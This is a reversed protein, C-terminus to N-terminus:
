RGSLMGGPRREELIVRKVANDIAKGLKGAQDGTMETQTGGQNDVNVTITTNVTNGSQGKMDVPIAKGNPLPVIAENYAGEGVLGLTPKNVMGGKAFAQFGGRLINGNANFVMGAPMSSLPVDMGPVVSSAGGGGFLASLPNGGGPTGGGFLALLSKYILMKLMEQIIQAAMQFFSDAISNFMEHLVESVTRAGTIVEKFGSTLAQAIHGGVQSSVESLQQLREEVADMQGLTQAQMRQQEAYKDFQARQDDNMTLTDNQTIGLRYSEIAGEAQAMRRAQPSYFGMANMGASRAAMEQNFGLASSKMDEKMTPIMAAARQLNLIQERLQREKALDLLFKEKDKGLQAEIRTLEETTLKGAKQEERAKKLAILRAEEAKAEKAKLEAAIAYKEPDTIDDVLKQQVELGAITEQLGMLDVAGYIKKSVATLKEATDAAQIEKRLEVFREKLVKLRENAADLSSTDMKMDIGALDLQPKDATGTGADGIQSQTGPRIFYGQQKFYGLDAFNGSKLGRSASQHFVNNGGTYVGVHEPAGRRGRAVIDGPKLQSWDTMVVGMKEASKATSDMVSANVGLVKMFGKVAEACQNNVGTLKSTAETARRIIETNLGSTATMTGPGVRQGGMSQGGLLGKTYAIRDGWETGSGIQQYGNFREYKAAALLAENLTRANKLADRAETEATNLEYWVYELQKQFNNRAGAAIMAEKRGGDSTWQAIGEAKSSPNIANSRLGSEQMFGGVLASAQLKNLGKGMFFRMAVDSAANGSPGNPDNSNNGAMANAADIARQVQYDAVQMQFKGVRKQIEAIKEQVQLKFDALEKDMEQISLQFEKEQMQREADAGDRVSIYENLARIAEAGAGTQGEVLADAAKRAQNIRFDATEKVLRAEERAVEMRMAFEKDAVQRNLEQRQKAVEEELGKRQQALLKGEEKQREIREAFAIKDALIQADAENKARQGLTKKREAEINALAAKDAEVNANALWRM